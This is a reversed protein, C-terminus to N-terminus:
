TGGGPMFCRINPVGTSDRYIWAVAPGYKNPGEVVEEPSVVIWQHDIRVRYRSEGNIVTTDWDVDAISSGDVFSCCQFGGKSALRNFWTDLDPRDPMHAFAFALMGLMIIGVLIIVLAWWWGSQPPRPEWPDKLNDTPAEPNWSV